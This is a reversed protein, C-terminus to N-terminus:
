RLPWELPSAEGGFIDNFSAFPMLNVWPFQLLLLEMVQKCFRAIFDDYIIVGANLLQRHIYLIVYHSAIAVGQGEEAAFM